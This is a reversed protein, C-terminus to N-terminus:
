MLTHRFGHKAQERFHVNGLSVRVFLRDSQLVQQSHLRALSLAATM